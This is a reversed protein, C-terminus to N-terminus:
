AQAFLSLQSIGQEPATGKIKQSSLYQEVTENIGWKPPYFYDILTTLPQFKAKIRKRNSKLEPFAVRSYKDTECFLGQCDIAQLPRGWLSQFKIGLREFEREQNEQMWKVIYDYSKGGTDEFCKKIGREAGPGAVTFSNESFNLADSYNLDISLQYALFNGILPYSVLLEFVEQMSHAQLIKRALNDRVLMQELLALHNQHKRLYGFAKNACSMYASTYIALGDNLAEQLLRSYLDFNFTSLSVGGLRKELYQWTEIKNFIKFLLIRFVTDEEKHLKNYVVNRILYQSVRDSARYTNCFKFDNLIPDNAWPRPRNCIRAFFVEQRAAAFKWYTDFVAQRKRM